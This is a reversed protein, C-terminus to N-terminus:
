VSGLLRRRHSQVALSGELVHCVFVLRVLVNEAVATAVGGGPDSAMLVLHTLLVNWSVISVHRPEDGLVYVGFRECFACLGGNALPHGSSVLDGWLDTEHGCLAGFVSVLVVTADTLAM